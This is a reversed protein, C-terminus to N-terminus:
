VKFGLMCVDDTQSIEGKWKLHENLIHERQEAVEKDNVQLLLQKFRVRGYRKETKHHFQDIYGDTTFYIMDDPELQVVHTSFHEKTDVVNAGGIAKRNGKYEILENNRALYFTHMAGSYLFLNTTPNFIGFSIDLGDLIEDDTNYKNLTGQLANSLFELVLAPDELKRDEVAQKIYDSALITLLAGSVGHGTCDGVAVYISDGRKEFWYFDGGLSDRQSFILFSKPLITQLLDESPMLAGQIRKAYNINDSIDKNKEAIIDQFQIQEIVTAASENIEKILIKQQETFNDPTKSLLTVSAFLKNGIFIPFSVVSKVGKAQWFKDEECLNDDTDFNKKEFVEGKLHPPLNPIGKTSINKHQLGNSEEDKFILNGTFGDLSHILISVRCVRETKEYFLDIIGKYLDTLNSYSILRTKSENLIELQKSYEEIRKNNEEIIRRQDYQVFFNALSNSIDGVLITHTEQYINENVSFFGVFGYVKSGGVIPMIVASRYSDTPQNLKMYLDTENKDTRFNIIHNSCLGAERIWEPKIPSSYKLMELDKATMTYCNLVDKNRSFINVSFFQSKDSNSALHKLINKYTTVLDSSALIIEKIQNIVILDSNTRKLKEQAMVRESIDRCIAQTGIFSGNAENYKYLTSQGIWAVKGTKTRFPFEFYSEKSKNKLQLAFFASVKRKYQEHVLEKYNKGILEEKTYEAFIVGTENIYDFNGTATTTYIIDKANEVLQRFRQEHERRETIDTGIGVFVGSELKSNNWQIWKQTRHKTELLVTATTEIEGKKIKDYPNNETSIVKRVRWWGQGLVEAETFGLVRVFTNNVYIVDGNKDAAMVLSSGDNIVTNAFVLKDSLSLRIYISVISVFLISVMALVYIARSFVPEKVILAIVVTLVAVVISFSVYHKTKEFIVTGLSLSILQAFIFFPNLASYYSLFIFNGVALCYTVALIVSIRKQVNVSFYTLAAMIVSVASVILSSYLKLDYSKNIVAFSFSAVPIVLASFFLLIRGMKLSGFGSKSTNSLDNRFNKSQRLFLAFLSLLATFALFGFIKIKWQLAKDINEEGSDYTIDQETFVYERTTDIRDLSAVDNVDLPSAHMM